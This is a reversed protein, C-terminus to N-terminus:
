PMVFRRFRRPGWMKEIMEDFRDKVDWASQPQLNGTLLCGKFFARLPTPVGDYLPPLVFLMTKAAMYIDDGPSPAKKSLITEPYFGRFEPAAYPVKATGDAPVSATWDDLMVGHLEPHILVRDPTVAGHVWGAFHAAGLATLVRRWMWAMDRPDIGAPYANKVDTLTYWGTGGEFTNVHRRETTGAPQYPFSDLLTPFYPWFEKIDDNGRISRLAKAERQLLDNDGPAAAIKAVAPREVNGDDLYTARYLVAPGVRRYPDYVNYAWRKARLVTVPADPTTGYTGADIAAQAADWLASLRAFAAAAVEPQDPNTDPHTAQAMRRYVTQAAARQEAPAGDLVGFVDEPRRAREIQEALVDLENVAARVEAYRDLVVARSSM